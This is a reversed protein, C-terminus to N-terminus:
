ATRRAKVLIREVDGETQAEVKIQQIIEKSYGLEKAINVYERRAAEDLKKTYTM